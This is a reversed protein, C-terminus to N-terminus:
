GVLTISPTAPTVQLRERRCQKVRVGRSLVHRDRPAETRRDLENRKGIMPRTCPQDSATPTGVTQEHVLTNLRSVMDFFVM